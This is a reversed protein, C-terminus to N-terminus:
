TSYEFKKWRGETVVEVNDGDVVIATQDDIAYFTMRYKHALKAIADENFQSRDERYFHPRVSFDVFGLGTHAVYGETNDKTSKITIPGLISSGASSGVYVKSSLETRLLEDLGCARLSDLLHSVSGGEVFLADADKLRPLWVEKPIATYDVIDITGIGLTDLRVINDVAWRKDQVSAINIATPIYAIATDKPQKGVMEFFRNAISDNTIGTSTLLLKM